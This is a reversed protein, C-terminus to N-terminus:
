PKSKVQSPIRFFEDMFVTRDQEEQISEGLQKALAYHRAHLEADGLVAAAFAMEAHAFAVDWDEGENGEFFALCRQAYPLAMEGQGLTAHVHALTVDARANNIPKGVKSWHFAATYACYLMEQDEAPTRSPKDILDWTRNNGEMAFRRHWKDITESTPEDTM